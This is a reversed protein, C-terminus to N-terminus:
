KLVNLTVDVGQDEAWDLLRDVALAREEPPDEEETLRHAYEHLLDHLLYRGFRPEQVLSQDSLEELGRRVRALDMGVLAAAAEPSFDQAPHLSLRRFMRQRMPDLGRYSLEFASAVTDDEAWIESLRDSARTLETALNWVSWVPRYKLRTACLNVALPLRACSEVIQRVADQDSGVREPGVIWTFLKIADDSVLADLAIRAAGALGSLRRRSTVIVLCGGSGPLLPDVQSSNVANDLVILARRSALHSRWLAARVDLSDPIERDPVGLVRLLTELGSAPEVPTRGRSHAHLNLYLQADPYSSVLRHAVHLALATKGVGAMGDITFITTANGANTATTTEAIQNLIHERDTFHSLDRPLSNLAVAPVSPMRSLEGHFHVIQVGSGLAAVQTDGGAVV